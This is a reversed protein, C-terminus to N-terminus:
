RQWGREPGIRPEDLRCRQPDGFEIQASARTVAAENMEAVEVVFAVDAIGRLDNACDIIERRLEDAKRAIDYLVRPERWFREPENALDFRRDVTGRSIMIVPTSDRKNLNFANERRGSAGPQGIAADYNGFMIEFDYSHGQRAVASEGGRACIPPQRQHMIRLHRVPHTLMAVIKNQGPVRVAALDPQRKIARHPKWIGDARVFKAIVLRRGAREVHVGSDARIM